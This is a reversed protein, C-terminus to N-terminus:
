YENPLLLTTVSRDAETIIWLKEGSTLTYSSLVRNGHKLAHENELRDERCLDGWDGSVHRSLYEAANARAAALAELAGPTGVVHHQGLVHHRASRWAGLAQLAKGQLM